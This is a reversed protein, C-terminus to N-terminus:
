IFNDLELTESQNSASHNSWDVMPWNSILEPTTSLPLQQAEIKRMAQHYDAELTKDLVRAYIMTTNLNDHGLLKQIRTIDMGTNLLRTALTHRLRHPSVIINGAAQGLAVVRLYLWGTTVPRGDPRVWLSTTPQTPTQSLYLSLAQHLTQSLYVIRDRQGKGLRVILRGAHLDLDQPHLDICESARLGTHALLFFCANELRILPDSSTLRHRVFAELNRADTESLHRPLSDPRPLSKLRFVAPDVPQGQDALHRLIAMVFDLTHNTTTTAKGARTRAQQYAKLDALSLDTPETIPRYALQWSWFTQLEGLVRGIQKPRRQPKWTPLRRQVLDLSAQRLAPPLDPAWAQLDPLLAPPPLAPAPSM